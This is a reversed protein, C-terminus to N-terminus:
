LIVFVKLALAKFKAQYEFVYLHPIMSERKIYGLSTETSLM